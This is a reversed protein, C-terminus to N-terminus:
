LGEYDKLKGPPVPEYQPRRPHTTATPSGGPAPTSATPATPQPWLHPAQRRETPDLPSGVPVPDPDQGEFRPELRRLADEKAAPLVGAQDIVRMFMLLRERESQAM